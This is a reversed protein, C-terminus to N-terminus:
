WITETPRLFLEMMPLQAYKELEIVESLTSNQHVTLVKMNEMHYYGTSYGSPHTIRVNCDSFVKVWGKHAATIEGTCNPGWDCVSRYADVSSYITGNGTDSHAPGM